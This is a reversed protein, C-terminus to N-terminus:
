FDFEDNLNSNDSNEEGRHTMKARIKDKKINIINDRYFFTVHGKKCFKAPLVLGAASLLFSATARQMM